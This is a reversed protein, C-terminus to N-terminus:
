DKAMAASVEETDRFRRECRPQAVASPAVPKRGKLDQGTLDTSGGFVRCNLGLDPDHIHKGYTSHPLHIWFRSDINIANAALADPCRM